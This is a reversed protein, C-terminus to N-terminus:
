RCSADMTYGSGSVIIALTNDVANRAEVLLEPKMGIANRTETNLNQLALNYDQNTNSELIRKLIGSRAEVEIPGEISISSIEAPPYRVCITKAVQNVVIDNEKLKNLDVGIDAKMNARTNVEYGWWFNSWSSGQDIKTTAKQDIIISRTILVGKQSIKEFVARSTLQEVKEAKPAFFFWGSLLGLIVGILLFVVNIWNFFARLYNM